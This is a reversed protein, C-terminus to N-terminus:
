QIMRVLKAEAEVLDREASLRNREAESAWEASYTNIARVVNEAGEFGHCRLRIRGGVVNLSVVSDGLYEGLADEVVAAEIDSLQRDFYISVDSALGRARDSVGQADSKVKISEIRFNVVNGM